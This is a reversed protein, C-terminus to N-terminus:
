YLFLCVYHYSGNLEKSSINDILTQSDKLFHTNTTYYSPLVELVKKGLSNTPNFVYNYIPKDESNHQEKKVKEDLDPLLEKVQTSIMKNLELDEVIESKLMKVKPVFCIPLKFIENIDTQKIDNTM